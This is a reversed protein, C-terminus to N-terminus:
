RRDADKQANEHNKCVRESGVSESPPEAPMTSANSHALRRESIHRPPEVRKLRTDSSLLVDGTSVRTEQGIGGAHAGLKNQGLLLKGRAEKM